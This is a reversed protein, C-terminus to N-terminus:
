IYIITLLVFCLFFFSFLFTDFRFYKFLTNALTVVVDLLFLLLFHRTFLFLLSTASLKFFSVIPRLHRYSHHGLVMTVDIALRHLQQSHTEVADVHFQRNEANKGCALVAVAANPM